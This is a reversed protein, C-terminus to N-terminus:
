ANTVCALPQGKPAQKAIMMDLLAKKNEEPLEAWVEDVTKTKKLHEFRIKFKLQKLQDEGVIQEVEREMAAMLEEKKKLQEKCVALEALLEDNLKLQDDIAKPQDCVAPEAKAAAVEQARVKNLDSVWEQAKAATDARMLYGPHQDDASVPVISFLGAVGGDVLKIERTKRLDLMNIVRAQPSEAPCEQYAYLVHRNVELWRRVWKDNQTVKRLVWGSTTTLEDGLKFPDDKAKLQEKCAALEAKTTALEEDRAAITAKFTEDKDEIADVTLRYDDLMKKAARVCDGADTTTWFICPKGALTKSMYMYMKIAYALDPEFHGHDKQIALAQQMKECFETAIFTNVEQETKRLFEFGPKFSVPGDEVLNKLSNDLTTM